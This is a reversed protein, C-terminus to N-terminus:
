RHRATMRETLLRSITAAVHVAGNDLAERSVAEDPELRVPNGGLGFSISNANRLENLTGVALMMTPEVGAAIAVTSSHIVQLAGVLRLSMTIQKTVDAPDFIAAMSGRPLATVMSVQGSASVRVQRLQADVPQNWQRSAAPFDAFVTGDGSTVDIAATAAVVNSRRLASALGDAVQLMERGTRLPQEIPIVHVELMAEATNAGYDSSWDSKWTVAPPGPLAEYTVGRPRTELNRIAAVVKAQLDAANTFTDYFIGTGYDGVLRVFEEQDPELTVGQKRFVLRPIGATQAAVFEDHTASQGTEPFRYGYKPGLLLLYVDSGAVGDLCAQRSPVGQPGFDEFRVPMYGLASILGPLADREAELGQRVSSIFVRM